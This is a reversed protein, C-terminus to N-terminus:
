ILQELNVVTWVNVHPTAKEKTIVHMSPMNFVPQLMPVAPFCGCLQDAPSGVRM